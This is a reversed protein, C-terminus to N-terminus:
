LGAEGLRLTNWGLARIFHADHSVGLITPMERRSLSALTDCVMDRSRDDLSATPEDLLLVKAEQALCRAISVRQKEGGSLSAYNRGRVHLAGVRELTDSVIEGIRRTNPVVGM